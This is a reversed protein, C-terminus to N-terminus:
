GAPSLHMQKSRQNCLSLLLKKHHHMLVSQHSSIFSMKEARNCGRSKSLLFAYVKLTSAVLACRSARKWPKPAKLSVAVTFILTKSTSSGGTNLLGEYTISTYSSVGAPVMMPATVACSKSAPLLGTLYCRWQLVLFVKCGLKIQPKQWCTNTGSFLSILLFFCRTKTLNQITCFIDSTFM